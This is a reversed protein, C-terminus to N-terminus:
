NIAKRYNINRTGAIAGCILPCNEKNQEAEREEKEIRMKRKQEEM